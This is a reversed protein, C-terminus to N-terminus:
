SNATPPDIIQSVATIKAVPIGSLEAHQHITAESDALYICCTRDGAVYSHLWQIATGIKAM